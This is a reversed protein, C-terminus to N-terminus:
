KFTFSSQLSHQVKRVAHFADRLYSRMLSNLEKPDLFDDPASGAQIQRVQHDLRLRWFLEYAEALTEHEHSELIGAASALELREPTGTVRSGSALCATRAINAIPLTGGHKIDLRGRHEGSAVVVFDRLFGTPPKHVLALRLMVRTLSERHALERFEDLVDQAGATQKVV